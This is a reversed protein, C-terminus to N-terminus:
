LEIKEIRQRELATAVAEARTRVGLKRFLSEVHFKVTHLSIELQRAIMKNTLGRRMADVVELERPTLLARLPNEKMVAFGSESAQASRVVLGVSVARLAADIQEPTANHALSGANDAQASGLAVVPVSEVTPCDGDALVVDADDVALAVDHGARALIEALRSRRSGERAHILVRLARSQMAPAAAAKM